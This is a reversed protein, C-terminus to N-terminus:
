AIGDVIEKAKRLRSELDENEKEVKNKSSEILAEYRNAESQNRIDEEMKNLAIALIYPLPDGTLKRFSASLVASFIYKDGVTNVANFFRDPQSIPQHMFAQYFENWGLKGKQTIAYWQLPTRGSM